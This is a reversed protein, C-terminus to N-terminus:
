FQYLSLMKQAVIQYAFKQSANNAIIQSKFQANIEAFLQLKELLDQENEGEVFLANENETLQEKLVSLDAAIVPIGCCLAEAMVCGFTEFRSFLVLVDSNQMLKAVSSYPINGHLIINEELQSATVLTQLLPAIPGAIHLKANSNKKLFPHFARIVADTNKSALNGTITLYKLHENDPKPKETTLYFLDTDVVNPIVVPLKTVLKEDVLADALYNSVCHVIKANRFASKILLQLWKPSSFFGKNGKVYWTHHETIIFPISNRFKLWLPLLSQRLPVHIHLQDFNGKEKKVIKYGKWLGKWYRITSTIRNFYSTSESVYYYIRYITLNDIKEVEVKLGKALTTDKEVYLVTIPLIQSVAVAHRFIFDGLFMDNKNPFWGPLWLVNLKKDM